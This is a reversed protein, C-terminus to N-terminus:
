TRAFTAIDDRFQRDQEPTLTPRTASIASLYDATAARHPPQSPDPRRHVAREFASQAATRAAHGLDAATFGSSAEVLAAVDVEEGDSIRERFARWMVERASVDPPGIPLVYDFRGPRLFASDINSVSNTACVLLRNPRERFVPILKLLENTVGQGPSITGIPRASAIEEVEDIFVVVHDLRTLQAFTERLAGALGAPSEAALRSPFLEVFPWGLRGATGRAFTTKGTGPPGFLMIARPSEVGHSRALDPHTLPAIVRREILDKELGMGAIDDWAHDPLMRGGLEDLVTVEAPALMEVKEYFTLDPRATFGSNTFAESGTEGAPLVSSVRHVGVSLLRRELERLLASGVGRHRWQPSIALRLVWARQGRVTAIACGIVDDDQVALVAPEYNQVATLAETMSFVPDQGSTGSSDWLALLAPLDDDVADRVVWPDM